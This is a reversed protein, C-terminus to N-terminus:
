LARVGMGLLVLLWVIVNAVVLTFAVFGAVAFLVGPGNLEHFQVHKDDDGDEDREVQVFREDEDEDM